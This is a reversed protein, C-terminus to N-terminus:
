PATYILWIGGAMVLLGCIRKVWITGQSRENWNLSHQVKETFTGAFVIVACHGIGYALLLMAAYLMNEAAEAFAVGLVPVMFAFTCPGLAVGFILGLALAALLGKRQMGFLFFDL